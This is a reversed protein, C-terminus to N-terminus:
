WTARRHWDPRLTFNDMVHDVYNYFVQAEVRDVLSSIHKRDFKLGFNDRAFKTGDMSRDAYAAYGDSKALSTQLVTDEDPTWGMAANGSWRMYKSRVANGAGDKYDGAQTRTADVRTYASASGVRGSLM